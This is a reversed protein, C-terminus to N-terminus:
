IEQSVLLGIQAKFHREMEQFDVRKDTKIELLGEKIEMRRYSRFWVVLGEVQAQSCFELAFKSLPMFTSSLFFLDFFDKAEQRGGIFFAKGSDDAQRLAGCVALVKRLYIDKIGMVPIGDVKKISETLRATDEIFDIKFAGKGGQKLIFVLIRTLGEKSQESELKFDFDTVENLGTIVQQAKIRSFEQAFFDLDFSLRHQFYFLSLATGGGLYFDGLTGALHKLLVDRIKLTKDM